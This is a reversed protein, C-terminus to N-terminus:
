KFVGKYKQVLWSNNISCNTKICDVLVVHIDLALNKYDRLKDNETELEKIRKRLRYITDQNKASTSMLPRGPKM